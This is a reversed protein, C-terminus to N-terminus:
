RWVAATVAREAVVSVSRRNAVSAVSNLVNGNESYNFVLECDTYARAQNRAWAEIKQRVRDGHKIELGPCLELAGKYDFQEIRGILGDQEVYFNQVTEKGHLRVVDAPVFEFREGRIQRLYGNRDQMPDGPVVLDFTGVNEGEALGRQLTVNLTKLRRDFANITIGAGELGYPNSAHTALEITYFPDPSELREQLGRFLEDVESSGREVSVFSVAGFDLSYQVQVMLRKGRQVFHAEGISWRHDDTARFAKFSSADDSAGHTLSSLVADVFPEVIFVADSISPDVMARQEATLSDYAAAVQALAQPLFSKGDDQSLLEGIRQPESSLNPIQLSFTALPHEAPPTGVSSAIISERLRQELRAKYARALPLARFEDVPAELSRSFSVSYLQDDDAPHEGDKFVGKQSTKRMFGLNIGNFQAQVADRQTEVDYNARALTRDDGADICLAKFQAFTMDEALSIQCQSRTESRFAFTMDTASGGGFASSGRTEFPAVRIPEVYVFTVHGDPTVRVQIGSDQLIIFTDQPNSENNTTYIIDCRKDAVCDFDEPFPQANFYTERVMKYIATVNKNSLWARPKSAQDSRSAYQDLEAGGILIRERPKIRVSVKQGGSTFAGEFAGLYQQYAMIAEVLRTEQNFFVLVEETPGWSFANLYIGDPNCFGEPPRGLLMDANMPRGDDGWLPIGGVSKDPVIPKSVMDRILTDREAEDCFRARGVSDGSAQGDFSKTPDESTYPASPDFGNQKATDGSNPTFKQEPEPGNECAACGIAAALTICVSARM